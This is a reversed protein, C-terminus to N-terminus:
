GIDPATPPQMATLVARRSKQPLRAAPSSGWADRSVGHTHGAHSAANVTEGM